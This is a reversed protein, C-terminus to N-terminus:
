DYEERFDIGSCSPCAPEWGEGVEEIEIDRQWALMEFEAGCEPCILLIIDEM